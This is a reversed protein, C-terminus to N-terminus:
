ADNGPKSADGRLLAATMAKMRSEGIRQLTAINSEYIAAADPLSEVARSVSSERLLHLTPFPSRNSYNTVDGKATGAFQYDPHFSAVQIIGDLELEELTADCVVLFHLYDQFDSLVNPHILLTSEIQEPRAAVLSKLERKFEELLAEANDALSVFYRLQQKVHIAKAFPCLNLGIVIDEVWAVTAKVANSELANEEM